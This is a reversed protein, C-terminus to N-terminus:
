VRRWNMFIYDLDGFGVPNIDTLKEYKIEPYSNITLYSCSRLDTAYNKSCIIQITGDPINVLKTSTMNMFSKTDFIVALYLQKTISNLLTKGSGMCIPCTTYDPFPNPGNGNYINSSMETSKDFLCNNCYSTINNDFYLTCQNTLGEQSLIQDIMKKYTNKLNQNFIM